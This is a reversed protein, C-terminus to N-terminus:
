WRARDKSNATQRQLENRAACKAIHTEAMRVLAGRKVGGISYWKRQCHSCHSFTTGIMAM